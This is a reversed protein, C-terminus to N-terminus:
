EKEAYLKEEWYPFADHSLISPTQEFDGLKLSQEPVAKHLYEALEAFSLNGRTEKIKKLLAYTFLGHKEEKAFHATQDGSAATFVILNPPLSSIDGAPVARRVAKAAVVPSNDRRMGSFCSDLFVAVLKARSRALQAYIENLSKLYDLNAPSVDTPLLYATRTEDNPVGHGSYYLILEANELKGRAELWSLAENMEGSTANKFFKIQSEPVGFTKRCYEYFVKGDNLAFSVPAVFRYDENAIVAVFRNRSANQPNVPINKDVDSTFSALEIAEREDSQAKLVTKATAITANLRLETEWNEAYEGYKESIKVRVPIANGRYRRPVLLSVELPKAEGGKLMEFTQSVNGDLLVIEKPFEIEVVVNEAKGPTTNQLFFQLDLPANKKLTSDGQGSVSFDVIKILPAVFPRTEVALIKEESGFGNPEEASLLFEANGQKLLRSAVVPIEAIVTEGAPIKSIGLAPSFSLGALPTKLTAKLRCGYADANGGNKVPVCIRCVEGGDVAFNGSPELIKAAEVDIELAPFKSKSFFAEATLPFANEGCEAIQLPASLKELASCFAFAEEGLFELNEPLVLEPLKECAFFARAGIKKLTAPFTIKELAACHAFAASKIESLNESFSIERLKANGFFAGSGIGVIRKGDIEGPVRLSSANGYYASIEANGDGLERLSFDESAVCFVAGSFCFIFFAALKM